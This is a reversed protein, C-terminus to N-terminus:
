LRTEDIVMDSSPNRHARFSARVSDALRDADVHLHANVAKWCDRALGQHFEEGVTVLGAGAWYDNHDPLQYIGM